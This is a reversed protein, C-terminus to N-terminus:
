KVCKLEAIFARLKKSGMLGAVFSCRACSAKEPRNDLVFGEEIHRIEIQLNGGAHEKLPANRIELQASSVEGLERLGDPGAVPWGNGPLTM